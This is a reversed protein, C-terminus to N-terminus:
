FGGSSGGGGGGGGGGFGGGGGGSSSASVAISGVAAGIGSVAAAGGGGHSSGFYWAPSWGITGAREATEFTRRILDDIDDKLGFAVAWVTLLDPTTIWPLRQQAGEVAQDVSEATRLEHRLTNRYALSMALAQSGAATRAVLRGRLVIIAGGLAAVIALALAPVERGPLLLNSSESTDFVFLFGTVVAVAIVVIGIGLWRGPLRNPDDRFLGSAKAARGLDKRFEDYLGKGEGAKLRESTVVEWGTPLDTAKRSIARELAAEAGGLPRRRAELYPLEALPEPPVMLDVKKDDDQERFTLLGRHGLDVLASTFAEQDIGNRRLITALAPTMGKPPAPLLVSDDILPLTADRGSLWWRRLFLVFALAGFALAVVTLGLSVTRELARDPNGGPQVVRDVHELGAVLARDLDGEVARPLMDGNIIREREAANLYLDQFGDGAWLTVQGHALSTDLDFLVVLGDDVGARGVGWQRMIERADALAIDPTVQSLGSPWSVIVIVAETRARVDEAIRQATAETTDTWIEAFDYVYVGDRPPPLQVQATVALPAAAGAVAAVVAALWALGVLRGRSRQM